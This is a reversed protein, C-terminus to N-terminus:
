LKKFRADDKKIEVARNAVEIRGEIAPHPETPFFEDFDMKCPDAVIWRSCDFPVQDSESVAFHQLMFHDVALLVAGQAVLLDALVGRL